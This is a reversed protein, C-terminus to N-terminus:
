NLVVVFKSVKMSFSATPLADPVVAPLLGPM